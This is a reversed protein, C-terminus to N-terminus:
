QRRDAGECGFVDDFLAGVERREVGDADRRLQFVVSPNLGSPADRSDGYTRLASARVLRNDSLRLEFQDWFLFPDDPGTSGYHLIEDFDAAEVGVSHRLPEGITAAIEEKTSDLRLERVADCKKALGLRMEGASCGIEALVLAAVYV